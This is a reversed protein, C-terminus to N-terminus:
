LHKGNISSWLTQFIYIRDVTWFSQFYVSLICKYTSCNMIKSIREMMWQPCVWNPWAPFTWKKWWRGTTRSRFLPMETRWLRRRVLHFIKIFFTHLSLAIVNIIEKNHQFIMSFIGRYDEMFPGLTWFVKFHTCYWYIYRLSQVRVKNRNEQM